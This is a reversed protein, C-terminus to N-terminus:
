HKIFKLMEDIAEAVPLPINNWSMPEKEKLSKLNERM